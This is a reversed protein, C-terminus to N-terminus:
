GSSGGRTYREWGRMALLRLDNGFERRTVWPLDGNSAVLLRQLIRLNAACTPCLRVLSSEDDDPGPTIWVKVLTLPTPSHFRAGGCAAGDAAYEGEDPPGDLLSEVAEAVHTPLGM